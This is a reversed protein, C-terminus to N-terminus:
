YIILILSVNSEFTARMTVVYSSAPDHLLYYKHANRKYFCNIRRVIVFKIIAIISYNYYLTIVKNYDLLSLYSYLAYIILIKSIKKDFERVRKSKILSISIIKLLDYIESILKRNIFIYRTYRRDILTM